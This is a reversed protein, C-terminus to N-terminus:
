FAQGISILARCFKDLGPRPNLPFGLDLRIPGLFSFYRIGLGASKLWKGKFSPLQTLFVNGLDFFPVVGITQSLRLRLELSYFIASRGGEPKGDLLPSVTYYQYGRLDEESGGFFRKPVPLTSLTRSWTTGLVFKQAIVISHSRNCPFYCSYSLETQLYPYIKADFNFSPTATLKIWNGQTPNLLSNANSWSLFLPAELLWFDGNQVSETVFLREAELGASLRFNQNWLASFQQTLSYSRESFPEIELHMAVGEWGYDVDKCICDPFLYSITGSQVEFSVDGQISLKRGMGAVNRNEWGFVVGPGLATQYTAGLSLTKHRNEMVTLQLPLVDLNSPQAAPTILVSSFLGSEILENQTKEVEQYNYLDGPTWEQKRKVFRPHVSCLGEIALDGFKCLPGTEVFFITELKKTPYDALFESKVIKALPYGHTALSDLITLESLKIKESLAPTGRVLTGRVLSLSKLQQLEARVSETSTAADTAPVIEIRTDGFTYLDGAAIFFLVEIESKQPVIEVFVAAEYYGHAKLVKEMEPLDQQALYRLAQISSPTYHRLNKLQCVALLAKTLTGSPSDVIKVKYALPSFEGGYCGEEPAKGHLEQCSLLFLLASCFFLFLPRLLM